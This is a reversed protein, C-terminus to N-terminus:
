DHRGFKVTGWANNSFGIFTNRLTAGFGGTGEDAGFGGSEVQFITKLGGGLDEDGKLGFRSSNSEMSSREIQTTSDNDIRDWSMHIHGYLTAAAQAALSGAFIVSGVAAVLLKKKM